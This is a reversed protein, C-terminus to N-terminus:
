KRHIVSHKRKKYYPEIHKSKQTFCHHKDLIDYIALSIDLSALFIIFWTLSIEIQNAKQALIETNVTRLSDVSLGTNNKFDVLADLAYVPSFDKNRLMIQDLLHTPLLNVDLTTTFPGFTQFEIPERGKWIEDYTDNETSSLSLQAPIVFVTVSSTQNVIRIANDAIIRIGFM